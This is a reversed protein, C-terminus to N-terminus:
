KAPMKLRHLQLRAVYWMYNNSRMAVTKELHAIAKANDRTTVFWMGVYLEGYFRREERDADSAAGDTARAMVEDPKLKGTYLDYLLPFVGGRRPRYKTLDKQATELGDVEVQSLMRWLDNETDDPGVKNYDDFSKQAKAFQGAYYRSLGREWCDNEHQPDLEIFRDFDAISKKTDGNKFHERGRHHYAAILKPDLELAKDFDGIAQAHEDLSSRCLGRLLHSDASPKLKISETLDDAAKAFEGLRQRAIARLTYAEAVDAKQEISKTALEVADKLRRQVIAQRAQAVLTEEGGSDPSMALTHTGVAVALFMAVAATLQVCISYQM